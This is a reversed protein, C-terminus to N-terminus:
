IRFQYPFLEGFGKIMYDYIFVLYYYLYVLYKVQNKNFRVKFIEIRNKICFPLVFIVLYNVYYGIRGVQSNTLFELSCLIYGCITLVFMLLFEKNKLYGKIGAFLVLIAPMCKIYYMFINGDTAVSNMLYGSRRGTIFYYLANLIERNMVLYFLSLFVIAMLIKSHRNKFLIKAIPIVLVIYATRHLQSAILVLMLCYFYEKKSDKKIFRVIAYICIAIAVSQRMINFSQFYMIILYIFCSLKCDIKESVLEIAKYIFFSQIASLLFFLSKYTLGISYLAQNFMIYGAELQNWQREFNQTTYYSIYLSSDTGTEGRWAALISPLIVSILFLMIYSNKLHNKKFIQAKNFVNPICLLIVTYLLLTLVSDM